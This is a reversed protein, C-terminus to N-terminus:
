PKDRIKLSRVVKEFRQLDRRFYHLAPAQYLVFYIGHRGPLGYVLRYFRLGSDSRFSVLVRCGTIGKIRFPRSDLIRAHQTARSKRIKDIMLDALESPLISARSTRNIESFGDAHSLIGARIMQLGLGQRTLTIGQRDSALHFWGAPPVLLLRDGLKLSKGSPISRWDSGAQSSVQIVLLALLTILIVTGKGARGPLIRNSNIWRKTAQTFGPEQQQTQAQAMNM